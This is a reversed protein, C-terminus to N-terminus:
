VRPPRFPPSGTHVPIAPEVLAFLQGSPVSPYVFQSVAVNSISFSQHACSAMSPCRDGQDCSKTHDPCCDDMAASMEASVPAEFTAAAESSKAGASVSGTAPLLALSLAMVLGMITRAVYMM